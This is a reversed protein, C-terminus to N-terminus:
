RGDPPKPRATRRRNPAGKSSEPALGAQRTGCERKVNQRLLEVLRLTGPGAADRDAYILHLSGIRQEGGPLPLAKLVGSALEVRIRDEPLWAFGYGERVAAISTAMHSVTWRQRAELSLPTRHRQSGSDRVVIHRHTRLDTQTLERQLGHLPHGPAAVLHLRMQVLPEGLFGPPVRPAVAIDAEGKLLTEATGGLVSEILEIRTHPSEQGFQALTALLVDTPFIIEEALRIEAEWGASLRAAARELSEAEELLARARRYLFAGTATLQAKRGQVEFAKVGLLAEIKQVAYTVASQSKHLVQAAQAYGGADVVAMLARWQEIGIRPQSM